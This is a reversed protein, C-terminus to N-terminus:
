KGVVVKQRARAVGSLQHWEGAVVLCLSLCLSCDSARASGEGSCLRTDRRGEM